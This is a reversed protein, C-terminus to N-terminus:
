CNRYSMPLDEGQAAPGAAFHLIHRAAGSTALLQGVNADCMRSANGAHPASMAM